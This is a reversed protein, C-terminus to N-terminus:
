DASLVFAPRIIGRDINESLYHQNMAMHKMRDHHVPNKAIALASLNDCYLKIGVDNYM